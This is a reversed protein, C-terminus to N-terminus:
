RPVGTAMTAASSALSPSTTCCAPWYSKKPQGGRLAHTASQLLHATSAFRRRFYDVLTPKEPMPPLRPDDAMLFFKGPYRARMDESTDMKVNGDMLHALTSRTIIREMDHMKEEELRDALESMSLSHPHENMAQRNKQAGAGITEPTPRYRTLQAQCVDRKALM